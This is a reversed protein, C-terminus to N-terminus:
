WMVIFVILYVIKLFLSLNTKLIKELLFQFYFIVVYIIIVNTFCLFHNAIPPLHCSNTSYLRNPHRLTHLLMDYEWIGKHYFELIQIFILSQKM